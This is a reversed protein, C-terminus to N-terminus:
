KIKELLLKSGTFDAAADMAQLLKPWNVVPEFNNKYVRTVMVNLINGNLIASAEFSACENDVKKNLEEVGKAKYGEPITVAFSYTLTRASPMYINQTRTRDKESTKTYSGMLKGVDFIFNNGAKKVFNEMTFTESYEFAPKTINLGTNIVKYGIMEKPQQDFQSKVDAEFYDKQNQREKNMATQIEQAKQKNKKNESLIDVNKKKEILAALEAEVDEALM